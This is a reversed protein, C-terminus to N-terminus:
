SGYHEVEWASRPLRAVGTGVRIGVNLGVGDYSGEVEEQVAKQSVKLQKAVLVLPRTEGVPVTQKIRDILTTSAKM